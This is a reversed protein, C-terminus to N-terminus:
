KHKGLRFDMYKTYGKSSVSVNLDLKLFNFYVDGGNSLRFIEDIYENGEKTQIRYTMNTFVPISQTNAYCSVQAKVWDGKGVNVADDYHSGLRSCQDGPVSVRLTFHPKKTLWGDVFALVEFHIGKESFWSDASVPVINIATREGMTADFDTFRYKVEPNAASVTSVGVCACLIGAM